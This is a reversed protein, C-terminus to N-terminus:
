KHIQSQWNIVSPQPAIQWKDGDWFEAHGNLDLRAPVGISRLAAVYITKFGTEDTIQRLWITPVDHPLNPLDAITVRERLHRVVINAADEPSTEHRIRPYFEEWLPRRWNFSTPLQSNATSLNIVPSLVFDQYTKDDLQWNVLERNYGALEVHALLNQLRQGRWIPQTALYEFDTRQKPQMLFERAVNMTIDNIQFQPTLLHLATLALAWMALLAALLRLLSRGPKLPPTAPQTKTRWSWVLWGVAWAAAPLWFIWLSPANAQWQAISHYSQLATKGLLHTLCYEGLCRFVVEREPELNHPMGPMIKLEVSLGNTRLAAALRQTDAAPFIEDHNGHILLVPCHLNAVFQDTTVASPRPPSNLILQDLGAGSLQVLLQPQREPHQLAFDLIRNAGMSFGVWAIANTNVWKQRDLHHLVAEFQLAFAAENTQSYELSVVALGLEAMQRLDKGDNILAGNHGHAYIIVPYQRMPKPLVAVYKFFSGDATKLTLWQRSFPDRAKAWLLAGFFLLIIWGGWIINQRATM